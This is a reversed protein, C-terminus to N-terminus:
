WYRKVIISLAVLHGSATGSRLISVSVIVLVNRDMHTQRKPEGFCRIESWPLCNSAPKNLSMTLRRPVM